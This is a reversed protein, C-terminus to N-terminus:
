RPAPVARTAQCVFHNWCRRTWSPKGVAGVVRWIGFRRSSPSRLNSTTTSTTAPWRRYAGDPHLPTRGLLLRRGNAPRRPVCAFRRGGAGARHARLPLGCECLAPRSRRAEPTAKDVARDEATLDGAVRDEAVIKMPHWQTGVEVLSSHRSRLIGRRYSTQGHWAVREARRTDSGDALLLSRSKKLLQGFASPLGNSPVWAPRPDGTGGSGLANALFLSAEEEDEVTEGSATTSGPPGAPGKSAPWCTCCAPPSSRRAETLAVAAHSPWAAPM